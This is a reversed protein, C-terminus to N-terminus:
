RFRRSTLTIDVTENKDFTDPHSSLWTNWGLVTINKGGLQIKEPIDARKVRIVFDYDYDIGIYMRILEDLAKLSRTGPAFTHLQQRNLPGLIVRFKGQAFWGSKGLMVSRGLQVNQGLPVQKGPLRTRVDDILDQWQGVFEKIEVPIEFHHRLIQKLGNATRIQQTFLGSYYILSEDKTYLRNSLGRTGMGILSLLIQSHHDREEIVPPNLKKREYEIPLRYKNSAQYFLSIIRHNFLDFFHHMSEDKLKLRQLLMETYHYPLVSMSGTLGMFNINMQWQKNGSKKAKQKVSRIESTPFGLSQQTHFRIAETGPPTFRAVPKSSKKHDKESSASARELLRVAQFFSYTQPNETLNQIVASTKRWSTTPM